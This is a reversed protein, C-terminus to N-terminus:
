SKIFKYLEVFLLTAEEKTLIMKGKENIYNHIILTKEGNYFEDITVIPLEISDAKTEFNNSYGIATM